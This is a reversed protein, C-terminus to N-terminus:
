SLTWGNDIILNSGIAGSSSETSMFYLWNAADRKSIMNRGPLKESIRQVLEGSTNERIGGFSICNIRVGKEAAFIALSRVGMIIGGRIASYMSSIVQDPDLYLSRDQAVIGYQSSIFTITKLNSVEFELLKMTLRMPFILSILADSLASDLWNSDDILSDLPVKGRAAFYIHDPLSLYDNCYKIVEIIQSIDTCDLVHTSFKPNSIKLLLNDASIQSSVFGIVSHNEELIKICLEEGILGSAGFVWYSSL